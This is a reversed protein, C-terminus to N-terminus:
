TRMEEMLPNPIHFATSVTHYLQRQMARISILAKGAIGTDTYGIRQFGVTGQVNNILAMTILVSYKVHGIVAVKIECAMLMCIKCELLDERERRAKEGGIISLIDGGSLQPWNVTGWHIEPNGLWDACIDRSRILRQLKLAAIVVVKLNEAVGTCHQFVRNGSATHLYQRIARANLEVGAIIQIFVALVADIVTLVAADCQLCLEIRIGKMVTIPGLWNGFSPIEIM